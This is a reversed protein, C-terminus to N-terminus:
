RCNGRHPCHQCCCGDGHVHVAEVGGITAIFAEIAAMDEPRAVTVLLQRGGDRKGEDDPWGRDQDGLWEDYGPLGASV